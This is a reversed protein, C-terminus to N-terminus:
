QAAVGEELTKRSLRAIEVVREQRHLVSRTAITGENVRKLIGQIMAAYRRRRGKRTPCIGGPVCTIRWIWWRTASRRWIIDPKIARLTEYDLGMAKLGQPPLNACVVDATRILKEIISRGPGTNPEIALSKKNRNLPLFLAGAEKGGLPLVFRDEGGGLREIRIVEAGLDALLCTCCPGAIYRGFDLVRVGESVGGM